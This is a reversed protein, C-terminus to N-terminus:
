SGVQDVAIFLTKALAPESEHDIFSGHLGIGMVLMGVGFGDDAMRGQGGARKGVLVALDAIDPKVPLGTLQGVVDFIRIAGNDRGPLV